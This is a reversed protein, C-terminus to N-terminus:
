VAFVLGSVCVCVCVYWRALLGVPRCASVFFQVFKNYKNQTKRSKMERREARFPVDGLAHPFLADVKYLNAKAWHKTSQVKPRNTHTALDFGHADSHTHTHTLAHCLSHHDHHQHRTCNNLQSDPGSSVRSPPWASERQTHTHEQSLASRESDIRSPNILSSIFKPVQGVRNLKKKKSDCVSRDEAHSLARKRHTQTEANRTGDSVCRTQCNYLQEAALCM